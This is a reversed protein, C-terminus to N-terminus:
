GHWGSTRSKAGFPLDNATGVGPRDTPASGVALPALLGGLAASAVLLPPLTFIARM